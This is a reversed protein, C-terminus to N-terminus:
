KPSVQAVFEPDAADRLFTDAVNVVTATLEVPSARAAHLAAGQYVWQQCMPCSDMHNLVCAREARTLATLGGSEAMRKPLARFEKCTM